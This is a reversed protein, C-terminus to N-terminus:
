GEQEEKQKQKHQELIYRVYSAGELNFGIYFTKTKKSLVQHGLNHYNNTLQWGSAYWTQIGEQVLIKNAQKATLGVGQAISGIAQFSAEATLQSLYATKSAYESTIKVLGELTENLIHNQQSLKSNEAKLDEVARDIANDDELLAPSIYAGYKRISPIVDNTVWDTFEECEPKQSNLALKYFFAEHMLLRRKNTGSEQYSYRQKFKDKFTKRKRVDNRWDLGLAQCVQASDLWLTGNEDLFANIKLTHFQYPKSTVIEPKLM